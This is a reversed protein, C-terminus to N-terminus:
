MNFNSIVDESENNFFLVLTIEENKVEEMFSRSMAFNKKIDNIIEKEQPLGFSQLIIMSEIKSKSNIKLRYVAFDNQPKLKRYKKFYAGSFYFSNTNRIKNKILFNLAKREADIRKDSLIKTYTCSSMEYNDKTNLYILFRDGKKVEIECAPGFIEGVKGRIIISSISKGKYLKLIKIDAKYFREDDDDDDNTKSSINYTKLIEIEGIFDNQAFNEGFSQQNCKCAFVLFSNLIVFLILIKKM